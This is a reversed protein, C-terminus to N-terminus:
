RIKLTVFTIVALFIGIIWFRTVIKSEPIARLPAQIIAEIGSNGPKQYHHHLPTMKFIRQGKGYKRRTYKFYAVQLMVSLDEVFFIACLIPILLEKHILIAFVAIIGGITLSGTDGMFVQAPYANYWLFGILAGIFASMFVVLESSQPIYMINLYTSYIVNGGLYAMIALAVCIIASTGACLGDLGDTLNAGNSTAAVVVIVVLIFLIWGGVQAYDGLWQTLYAYDFNNDKVFPITTQTSKVDQSESAMVTEVNNESYTVPTVQRQTIDPSLYMTLGVILGLGVQGIIKFKGKMGEKDHKAVKIYDDCFGLSGLWITSILMLIMYINSLDGVLLCPILIAIIIIVGGMTPTGTKQMQGELGLDRIIEGVQMLQLRDIIKRGFVLAIFLSLLLAAGSRFTIYTMLRSGPIHSDQLLDFLYYLM